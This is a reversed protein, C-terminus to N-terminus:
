KKVSNGWYITIWIREVACGIGVHEISEETVNINIENIEAEFQLQDKLEM